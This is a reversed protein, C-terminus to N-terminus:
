KTESDNRDNSSSCFSLNKEHKVLPEHLKVFYVFNHM